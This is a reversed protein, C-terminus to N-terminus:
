SVDERGLSHCGGGEILREIGLGARYDIRLETALMVCYTDSRQESGQWRRDSDFGLDKGCHGGFGWM